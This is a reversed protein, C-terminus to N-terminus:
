GTLLHLRADRDDPEPHSQQPPYVACASPWRCGRGFRGPPPRWAPIFRKDPHGQYVSGFKRLTNLQNRPTEAFGAEAMVSYLVPAAHRKSLIFRDRDPWQPNQPDIR